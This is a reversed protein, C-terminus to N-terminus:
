VVSRAMPASNIAIGIMAQYDPRQASAGSSSLPFTDATIIMWERASELFLMVKANLSLGRFRILYNALHLSGAELRVKPYIDGAYEQPLNLSAKRLM